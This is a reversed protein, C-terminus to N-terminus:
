SGVIDIYLRIYDNEDCIYIPQREYSVPEEETGINVFPIIVGVLMGNYTEITPMLYSEAPMDKILIDGYEKVASYIDEAVVDKIDYEIDIGFAKFNKLPM